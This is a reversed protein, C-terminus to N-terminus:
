SQPTAALARRAMHKCTLELRWLQLQRNKTIAVKSRDSSQDGYECNGQETSSQPDSSKGGIQWNLAGGKRGRMPFPEYCTEPWTLKEESAGETHRHLSTAVQLAPERECHQWPIERSHEVLRPHCWNGLEDIPLSNLIHFVLLIAFNSPKSGRRQPSMFPITAGSILGLFLGRPVSSIRALRSSTNDIPSQFWTEACTRILVDVCVWTLKRLVAPWQSKTTSLQM